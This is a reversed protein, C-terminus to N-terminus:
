RQYSMALSCICDLEELLEEISFFLDDSSEIEKQVVRYESVAGVYGCNEIMTRFCHVEAFSMDELLWLEADYEVGYHNDEMAFNEYTLIRVARQDFLYRGCYDMYGELDCVAKFEFVEEMRDALAESLSYNTIGEEAFYDEDMMWRDNEDFLECLTQFANKINRETFM